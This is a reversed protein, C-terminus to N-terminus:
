RIMNKELCPDVSIVLSNVTVVPTFNDFEMFMEVFYPRSVASFAEKLALKKPMLAPISVVVLNEVWISILRILESSLNQDFDVVVVYVASGPFLYRITCITRSKELGKLLSSM